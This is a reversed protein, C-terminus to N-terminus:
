LIQWYNLTIGLVKSQLGKGQFCALLWTVLLYALSEKAPVAESYKM